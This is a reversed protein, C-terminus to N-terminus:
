VKMILNRTDYIPQDCFGKFPFRMFVNFRIQRKTPIRGTIEIITKTTKNDLIM